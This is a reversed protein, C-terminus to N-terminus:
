NKKKNMTKKEEEQPEEAHKRAMAEGLKKSLDSRDQQQAGNKQTSCNQQMGACKTDGDMGHCKTPGERLNGELIQKPIGNSCALM